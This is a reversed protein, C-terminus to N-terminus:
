ASFRIRKLHGHDRIKVRGSRILDILAAMTERENEACSSVVAVLDGLSLKNRNIKKYPNKM